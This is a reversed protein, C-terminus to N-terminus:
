IRYEQLKDLDKKIRETLLQKTDHEVMMKVLDEFDTEPKWCLQKKAKTIDAKLETVEAPRLFKPDTKVYKEWNKIGVASFAAQVFDQVSHNIGTGIVYDDSKEQQLM